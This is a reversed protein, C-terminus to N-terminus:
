FVGGDVDVKNDLDVDLQDIFTNPLGPQEPETVANNLIEDPNVMKYTQTSGDYMILYKDRTTAEDFNILDEMRAPVQIGGSTVTVKYKQPSKLRVNFSNITM